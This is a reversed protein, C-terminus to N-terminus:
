LGCLTLMVIEARRQCGLCGPRGPRGPCGPRGLAAAGVINGPSLIVHSRSSGHVLVNMMKMPLASFDKLAKSPGETDHPSQHPLRCTPLGPRGTGEGALVSAKPGASAVSPCLGTAGM